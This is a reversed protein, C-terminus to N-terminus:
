GTNEINKCEAKASCQSGGACGKPPGECEANPFRNTKLRTCYDQSTFTM